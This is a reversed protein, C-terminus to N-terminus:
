QKDELVFKQKEMQSVLEKQKPDAIIDLFMDVWKCLINYGNLKELERKNNELDVKIM